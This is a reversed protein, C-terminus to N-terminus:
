KERASEFKKLMLPPYRKNEQKLVKCHLLGFM